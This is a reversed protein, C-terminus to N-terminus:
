PEQPWAWAQATSVSFRLKLTLRFSSPVYRSIRRSRPVNTVAAPWLGPAQSVVLGCPVVTGAPLLPSTAVIQTDSYVTYSDALTTGFMVSTAGTFNTGTITLVTGGATSGSTTDLSTVAPTSAQTYTFRDGTALASTM